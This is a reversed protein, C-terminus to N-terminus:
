AAQGDAKQLRVGVTGTFAGPWGRFKTTGAVNVTLTEHVPCGLSLVEGPQLEVLERASLRTEIRATVPIPVLGLNRLLSSREDTTPERHTKHWSQTFQAGSAEISSASICINLMGRVEGIRVDFSLLIVVENPAAVQLMQPRTERGSIRFNVETIGSWTDTLNELILKIVADTVNQEIETFARNVSANKGSGGLMRDIMSFCVNPNLELGALSDLPDMAVAYYATPDPLSMLFESYTFQEVSMISIDVVTRLYASLSAASNRAFRDHLFHLSRLQEKSVRDPRRFNYAVVGERAAGEDTSEGGPDPAAASNLLSDIEDQSLIKTM